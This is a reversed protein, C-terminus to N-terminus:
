PPPTWGSCTTFDSNCGAAELCSVCAPTRGGICKTLCHNATCQGLAGFCGSCAATYGDTKEICSTVCSSAGLCKKGCTTMDAQFSKYGTSNWIKSDAADCSVLPEAVPMPLPPPTWGTCKAFDSDCGAAELCSVCAPTRGGICKTLCNNATCQGLAGFCGSCAATYGDTKEICSTVCSSAGLCKKGCTTMDAQFSKYGTSNWIKSDAADCSVLPEAVPM